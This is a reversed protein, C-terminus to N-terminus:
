YREETVSLCQAQQPKHSHSKYTSSPETASTQLQYTSPRNHSTRILSVHLLTSLLARRYSVPVLGSFSVPRSGGHEPDFQLDFLSSASRVSNFLCVHILKQLFTGADPIHRRTGRSNCFKRHFRHFREEEEERFHICPDGGFRRYRDGLRYPIV